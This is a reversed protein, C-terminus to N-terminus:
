SNPRLKNVRKQIYGQMEQQWGLYEPPQVDKKALNRFPEERRSSMYEYEFISWIVEELTKNNKEILPQYHAVENERSSPEKPAPIRSAILDNLIDNETENPYERKFRKYVQIQTDIMRKPGFSPFFMLFLKKVVNLINM